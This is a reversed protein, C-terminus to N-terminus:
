VRQAVVLFENCLRKRQGQLSPHPFGVGQTMPQLWSLRTFASRWRALVM